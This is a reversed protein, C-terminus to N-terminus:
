GIKARHGAVSCGNPGCEGTDASAAATRRAGNVLAMLEGKPVAGVTGNVAKGDNFVVVTPISAIGFMAALEPEEDVNVKGVKIYANEEAIEEVVPAVMRCPGCWTAWFDLLVPDKSELVEATFNEKTITIVSM